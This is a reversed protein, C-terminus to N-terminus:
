GTLNHNNNYNTQKNDVTSRIYCSKGVKLIKARVKTIIRRNM